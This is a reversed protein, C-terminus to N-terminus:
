ASIIGNSSLKALLYKRLKRLVANLVEKEQEDLCSLLNKSLEEVIPIMRGAHREGKKTVVVNISRRDYSSPERRVLRKKELTDLMSTVTNTARFVSKGIDTPVMKGGQLHLASMVAFQMPSSDHKGLEVELCRNLIDFTRLLARIVATNATTITVTNSKSM